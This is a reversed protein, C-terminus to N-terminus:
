IQNRYARPSLKMLSQFQRSFYNSDEFGCDFAIDTISRATSELLSTAHAIRIQQLYRNPPMGIAPVFIRRLHRESLHAAAAIDALTIKRHYNQEIYALAQGIRLLEDPHDADLSEYRRCIYIILETFYAIAMRQFGAPKEELERGLKQTLRKVKEIQHPSLHLRSPSGTPPRSGAELNFLVHFGPIRAMDGTGIELAIPDFIINILSLNQLSRYEHNQNKPIVFVDGVRVPFRHEGIQHLGAGKTIFVLEYFQHRHCPFEPQPDRVCVALPFEEDKFHSRITLIGM